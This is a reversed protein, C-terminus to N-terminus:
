ACQLIASAVTPRKGAVTTSCWPRPCAPPAPPTSTFCRIACSPRSAPPLTRAPATRSELTDQDAFFFFNDKLDLDGRIEEVADVLEEGVIAAKPKVLNFSHVLVKGRQSTNILAACVGLKACAAVTVLLEPRNEINVAITDGKKLGISALYDAIRNAWANFQKYTLETDEYILAAGNPNMGTAREIAVGLGLPKTTDTIKAMRSGKILGPLNSVVEPVKSLLKPLTIIDANSM